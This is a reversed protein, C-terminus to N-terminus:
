VSRPKPPLSSPTDFPNPTYGVGFSSGPSKSTALPTASMRSSKATQPSRDTMESPLTHGSSFSFQGSRSSAVIPTRDISKEAAVPSTLVAPRMSNATKPRSFNFTKMKTRNASQSSVVRLLPTKTAVESEIVTQTKSPAQPKAGSPTSSGDIPQRAAAFRKEALAQLYAGATATPAFAQMSKRPVPAASAVPSVVSPAGTTTPFIIESRDPHIALAERDDLSKFLVAVRDREGSSLKKTNDAHFLFQGRELASHQGIGVSDRYARLWNRVSGRVLEKEARVRVRASTVMQDNIRPYKALADLLSLAEAKPASTVTAAADETDDQENSAPARLPFVETKLYETVKAVRDTPLGVEHALRTPLAEFSAKGYYYERVLSAIRSAADESILLAQPMAFIKEAVKRSSLLRYVEETVDRLGKWSVAVEEDTM